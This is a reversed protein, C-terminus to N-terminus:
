GSTAPGEVNELLWRKYERAARDMEEDDCLAYEEWAMRLEDALGEKASAVDGGTAYLDAEDSYLMIGDGVCRVDFYLTRRMRFPGLSDIAVMDASSSRPLFLDPYTGGRTSSAVESPQVFLTM